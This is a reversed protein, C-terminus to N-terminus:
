EWSTQSQFCLDATLSFILLAGIQPMLEGLKGGSTVVIGM